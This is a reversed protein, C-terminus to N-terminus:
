PMANPNLLQLVLMTANFLAHIVVVSLYSQRQHYVYGLIVALPLLALGDRWGHIMCFIVAVVAIALRPPFVTTLWGQLVVRFLMEEALPASLAATVAIMVITFIDNSEGLLQLLSHQKEHMRVPLTVLISLGMPLAAAFYGRVGVSLQNAAQSLTIGYERWSGGNLILAFSLVIVLSFNIVAVWAVDRVNLSASEKSPPDTNQEGSNGSVSSEPRVVESQQSVVQAILPVVHLMLWLLAVGVVLMEADSRWRARPTATSELVPQGQIWRGILQRWVVVSGGFVTALLGGTAISQFGTRTFFDPM